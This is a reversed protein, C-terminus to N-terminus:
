LAKIFPNHDIFEVDLGLIDELRPCLEEMGPNETAYHTADVLLIDEWSRIIDHKLEASVYADVGHEKAVELYENRFGSGGFVMVKSVEERSGTFCVHTDLSKAVHNAFTGASCPSITGIRGIETEEINALGIKKALVDNIGDKAKDYNTHMSYLSINNDLAIKLTDALPRNIQNVAHFILTHHTILLDAGIESARKLVYKTPDLAVAIKKIDNELDLTLGIRGIDFDEALDPPAIEELISVVDSLKM